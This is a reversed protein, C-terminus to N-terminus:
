KKEPGTILAFWYEQTYCIGRSPSHESLNGLIDKINDLESHFIDLM